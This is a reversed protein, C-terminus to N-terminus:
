ASGHAWVQMATTVAVVGADYGDQWMESEDVVSDECGSTAGYSDEGIFDGLRGWWDEASNGDPHVTKTKAYIARFRIFDEVKEM